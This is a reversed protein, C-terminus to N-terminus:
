CSKRSIQNRYDDHIKGDEVKDYEGLGNETIM